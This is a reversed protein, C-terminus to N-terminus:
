ELLQEISLTLFQELGFADVWEKGNYRYPQDEQMGVNERWPLGSPYYQLRQLVQANGEPLVHVERITGQYERVYYTVKAGM